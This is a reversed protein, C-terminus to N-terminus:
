SAPKILDAVALGLETILYGRPAARQSTLLKKSVLESLYKGLTRTAHIKKHQRELTQQIWDAVQRDEQEALLLLVDRECETLDKAILNAFGEPEFQLHVEGLEEIYLTVSIAQRACGWAFAFEAFRHISAIAAREIAPMNNPARMPFPLIKADEHDSLDETSKDPENDTKRKM